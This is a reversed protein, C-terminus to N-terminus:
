SRAPWDLVYIYVNTVHTNQLRAKTVVRKYGKGEYSDLQPWLSPLQRSFYVFGDIKNGDTALEVAPYGRTPGVGQPYLKGHVFAKQWQGAVAQLLYEHSQGPGLTGYVFLRNIM